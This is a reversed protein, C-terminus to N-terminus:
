PKKPLIGKNPNNSNNKSFAAIGRPLKHWYQGEYRDKIYKLFELYYGAPYEEIGMKKGEFNMYDPHTILLVMGGQEAVWDSKKKWIDINNEKMIVFLAHDQPLTYPLEVFGKSSTPPQLNSSNIPNSPNNPPVWFPFITSVGDPQPEFPDTDFTSSDYEINLEGVWHLNHYMSPARFGVAGWKKVYENIKRAQRLFHSYSKFINGNHTVGHIGIEFGKDNLFDFVEQPVNYNEAVFNFSSRFGLREELNVLELCRDVGKASEVDHTLVLAFTKGEPWGSWGEPPKNAKEDIPWVHKYLDRKWLVVRRRVIIQLSRPIFPRIQYYLQQASM